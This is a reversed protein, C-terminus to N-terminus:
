DRAEDTLSGEAPVGAARARVCAPEHDLGAAKEVVAVGLVVIKGVTAADAPARVEDHGMAEVVIVAAQLAAAVEGGGLIEEDIAAVGEIPQVTQAFFAPRAHHGDTQM